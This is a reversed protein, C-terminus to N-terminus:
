QSEGLSAEVAATERLEVLLEDVPLSKEDLESKAIDGEFVYANSIRRPDEGEPGILFVVAKMGPEISFGPDLRLGDAVGGWQTLSLRDPGSGKIYELATADFTTSVIPYGGAPGDLTEVKPAHEGEIQVLVVAPYYQMWDSPREDPLLPGRYSDIVIEQVSRDGPDSATASRTPDRDSSGLGLLVVAAATAVLLVTTVGVVATRTSNGVRGDLSKM